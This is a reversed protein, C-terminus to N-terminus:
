IYIGATLQQKILQKEEATASIGDLKTATIKVFNKDGNNSSYDGVKGFVSSPKGATKEWGNAPIAQVKRQVILYPTMPLSLASSPSVNGKAGMELPTSMYTHSIDLAANVGSEALGAASQAIAVPNHTVIGSVLGGVEGTVSQIGRITSFLRAIQQQNYNDYTIPIDFSLNCPYLGVIQGAANPTLNDDNSRIIATAEGSVYDLAYKVTLRRNLVHSPAVGVIGVFPIYLSYQAACWDAFNGYYPVYKYTGGNIITNYGDGFRYGALASNTVNVITTSSQYHLHGSDHKQFDIPYLKLGTIASLANDQFLRSIGEYFEPKTFWTLVKRATTYNYVYASLVNLPSISPTIDTFSDTNNDPNSPIEPTPNEEYGSPIEPTDPVYEPPMNAATGEDFTALIGWDKFYNIISDEDPFGYIIRSTAANMFDLTGVSTHPYGVNNGDIVAESLIRNPLFDNPDVGDPVAASVLPIYPMYEPTVLEGKNLTYAAPTASAVDQVFGNCSIMYPVSGYLGFYNTGPTIYNSFTLNSVTAFSMSLSERNPLVTYLCPHYIIGDSTAGINMQNKNDVGIIQSFSYLYFITPHEVGVLKKRPLKGDDSYFFDVRKIYLYDDYDSENYDTLQVETQSNLTFRVGLGSLYKKVRGSDTSANGSGYIGYLPLLTNAKVSAKFDSAKGYTICAVLNNVNLQKTLGARIPYPVQRGKGGHLGASYGIVVDSASTDVTASFGGDPDALNALAVVRYPSLPTMNSYNQSLGSKLARNISDLANSKLNAVKALSWDIDDVSNLIVM